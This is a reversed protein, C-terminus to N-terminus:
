PNTTTGTSTFSRNSRVYQDIGARCTSVETTSASARQIARCGAVPHHTELQEARRREDRVAFRVRKRELPAVLQDREERELPRPDRAGLEGRQQPGVLRVLERRGVQALRQETELRGLPQRADVRVAARQAQVRVGVDGRELLRHAVVSEGVGHRKPAAFQQGPVVVVRALGPRTPEAVLALRSRSAHRLAASL